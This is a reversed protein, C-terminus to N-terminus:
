VKEMRDKAVLLDEDSFCLRYVSAADSFMSTGAQFYACTSGAPTPPENLIRPLPDIERPPLQPQIQARTQGLRLHQYLEDSLGTRSVTYMQLIALAAVLLLAAGLPLAASQMQRRRTLRRTGQLEFGAPGDDLRSGAEDPLVATVAWGGDPRPGAELRGGVLRVREDLGILGQGSGSGDGPRAPAENVVDIRTGAHQRTITVTVQAGPAHRAANTLSEQVVRHVAQSSMPLWTPGSGDRRLRVRMGATVARRVLEDVSEDAPQLDAAADANGLVRLIDRLRETARVASARLAGAAHRHKDTLDGALELAGSHLAILALEHGLSDHMDRAITARERLRAQGAVITREREGHEASLRRYRGVWWPLVSVVFLLLVLTLWYSLPNTSRWLAVALGAFAAATFVWLAVSLSAMRRGAVFAPLIAVLPLWGATTFVESVSVGASVILLPTWARDARDYRM